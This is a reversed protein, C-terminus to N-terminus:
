TVKQVPEGKYAQWLELYAVQRAVHFFDSAVFYLVGIASTWWFLFAPTTVSEFPLPTASFVMFLVMLAVKVVGMVLNIEILKMRLPGGGLLSQRLSEVVGADARVALLPALSFSWSLLAWLVFLLLTGLIVVAFYSVLAPDEGRALPGAVTTLGAWRVLGGWLGLVTGFAVLRLLQLMAVTVPRQYLGRDVQRLVLMRGATSLVIWLVLLLPGLWVALSLLGPLVLGSVEAVRLAVNAPDLLTMRDLGLRSVGARGGLSGLVVPVVRTLVLWITIGGFMWRWLVELAVATPHQWCWQMVRVFSQTGRLATTRGRLETGKLPWGERM